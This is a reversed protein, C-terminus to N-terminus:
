GEEGSYLWRRAAVRGDVDPLQRRVDDATLESQAAAVIASALERGVEREEIVQHGNERLWTAIGTENTTVIVCGHALGETIPLGVQERWLPMRRSPLVLVRARALEGYVDERPPDLLVLVRDDRRASEAAEAAGAGRGVISLRARPLAARVAPWAAMVDPYGKRVSLDGLFLIVPDEAAEQAGGARAPSPLAEIMRADLRRPRAGFESEYLERADSTGFAIRDLVHWLAVAFPRRLEFKLRAKLPLNARLDASALNEIAYAVVLPPRSRTLLSRLRTAGIFACARIVASTALPENVEVIDTDHRLAYLCSALLGARIPRVRAAVDADFDYRERHYLLTVDDYGDIRELHATRAVEYLQVVKM